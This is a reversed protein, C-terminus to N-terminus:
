WEDADLRECDEEIAKLMAQADEDNLVGFHRAFSRRQPVEYQIVVPTGDAPPEVPEIFEVKGERYIAKAQVLM